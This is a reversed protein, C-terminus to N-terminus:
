QCSTLSNFGSHNRDAASVRCFTIPLMLNRFCSPCCAVLVPNETSPFRTTYHELARLEDVLVNLTSVRFTSHDYRCTMDRAKLFAILYLAAPLYRQTGLFSHQRLALIAAMCCQVVSISEQVIPLTSRLSFLHSCIETSTSVRFASGFPVQVVPVLCQQHPGVPSNALLIALQDFFGIVSGFCTTTACRDTSKIVVSFGNLSGTSATCIYISWSVFSNFNSCIWATPFSPTM